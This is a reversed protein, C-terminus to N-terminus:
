EKILFQNLIKYLRYRKNPAAEGIGILDDQFIKIILIDYYNNSSRSISFTHKLYIRYVNHELQM